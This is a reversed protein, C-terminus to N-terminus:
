RFKEASQSRDQGMVGNLVQRTACARSLVPDVLGALYAPFATIRGAVLSAQHADWTQEEAELLSVLGPRHETILALVQPPPEGDGTLRLGGPRLSLHFGLREIEALAERPTM